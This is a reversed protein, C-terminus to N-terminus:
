RNEYAQKTADTYIVEHFGALVYGGTIYEFSRGAQILLCGSPIKVARKKWDRTWVYLGPYRSKGHITMFSIDYHFGAFVAGVDNKKLDSGTPALLHAGGEMRRSFADRDIGMGLAAMQSVTGIAQHLKDGWKNMRQEWDPFAAPVVQPFDDAAGDPREGIKWMFRWKADLVPTLPSMPTDEAALKLEALKQKHDRAMEILEPTAGVQYHHEPKIDPITEGAYFKDGTQAFYEEMLDIYEDNDQM